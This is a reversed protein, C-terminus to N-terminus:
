LYIEVYESKKAYLMKIIKYKFHHYYINTRSFLHKATVIEKYKEIARKIQEIYVEESFCYVMDFRQPIQIWEESLEKTAYKFTVLNTHQRNSTSEAYVDIVYNTPEGNYISVISQSQRVRIKTIKRVSVYISTVQGINDYDTRICYLLNGPRLDKLKKMSNTNYNSYQM